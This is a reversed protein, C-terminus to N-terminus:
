PSVLGLTFPDLLKDFLHSLVWLVGDEVEVSPGESVLVDPYSKSSGEVTLYKCNVM